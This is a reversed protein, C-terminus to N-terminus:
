GHSRPPEGDEIIAGIVAIGAAGSPELRGINAPGIGGLAFVPLRCQRVLAAFRLPGLIRADPHSETAFVPALLVADVGAAAARSLAARGHCSATVLGRRARAPGRKWAGRGLRWEGLHIGDARAQAALHDDGAILLWLGRAHCAKRLRHAKRRYHAQVRSPADGSKGEYCRLIVGAGRPLRHLYPRPDPLRDPDSMLFLVPLRRGGPRARRWASNLKVAAKTITM